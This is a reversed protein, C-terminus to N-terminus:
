SMGWRNLIIEGIDSYGLMDFLKNNSIRFYGDILGEIDPDFVGSISKSKFKNALSLLGTPIEPIIQDPNSRTSMISNALRKWKLISNINSGENIPRKDTVDFPDVDLYNTIRNFYNCSDFIMEEFLLVLVNSEGFLRKYESVINDYLFYPMYISHHPYKGLQEDSQLMTQLKYPGGNALYMRYHSLISSVQERVTIIIKGDPFVGKLREPVFYQNYPSHIPDGCLGEDSCIFKSAANNKLVFELNKIIEQSDWLFPPIAYFDRLWCPSQYERILSVQERNYDFMPEINSERLYKYAPFVKDLVKKKISRKRLPPNRKGLYSIGNINPFIKEQLYTTGTKPFGIHIFYEHKFNLRICGHSHIFVDSVFRVIRFCSVQPAYIGM